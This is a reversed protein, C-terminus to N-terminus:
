RETINNTKHIAGFVSLEEPGFRIMWTKILYNHLENFAKKEDDTCHQSVLGKIEEKLRNMEPLMDEPKLM